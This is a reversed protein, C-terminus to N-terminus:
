YNDPALKIDLSRIYILIYANHSKSAEYSSYLKKLCIHLNNSQVLMKIM